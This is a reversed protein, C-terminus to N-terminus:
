TTTKLANALKKQLNQLEIIKEDVSARIENAQRLKSEASRSTRLRDDTQQASVRSSSLDTELTQIKHMLEANKERLLNVEGSGHQSLRIVEEEKRKLKIECGM